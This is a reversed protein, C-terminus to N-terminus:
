FSKIERVGDPNLRVASVTKTGNSGYTYWEPILEPHLRWCDDNGYGPKGCTPYRGTSGEGKRYGTLAQKGLRRKDNRGRRARLRRAKRLATTCSRYINRVEYTYSYISWSPPSIEETPPRAYSSITNISRETMRVALASM